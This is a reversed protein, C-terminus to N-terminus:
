AKKLVIKGRVHVNTGTIQTASTGSPKVELYDNAVVSTLTDIEQHYSNESGNFNMVKTSHGSQISSGNKRFEPTGTYATISAFDTAAEGATGGTFATISVNSGVTSATLSNGATGATKARLNVTTNSGGTSTVTPHIVTPTSYDTGSTGTLLIASRTNTVTDSTTAGILIENAVANNITTRYTYTVSDLTVTTGDSPQGGFTLTTTAAQATATFLWGMDVRFSKIDCPVKFLLRDQNASPIEFIDDFVESTSHLTWSSNSLFLGTEVSFEYSVEGLVNMEYNSGDYQGLFPRTEGPKLWIEDTSMGVFNGTANIVKVWYQTSSNRIWFRNTRQTALGHTTGITFTRTNDGLGIVDFLINTLNSMTYNSVVPVRLFNQLSNVGTTNSQVSVSQEYVQQSIANLNFRTIDFHYSVRIVDEGNELALWTNDSARYEFIRYQKGSTSAMALPSASTYTVSENSKLKLATNAGPRVNVTGDQGSNPTVEIAIRVGDVVDAFGGIGEVYGTPLHYVSTGQGTFENNKNLSLQVEGSAGNTYDTGLVRGIQTSMTEMSDYVKGITTRTVSGDIQTTDPRQGVTDFYLTTNNSIPATAYEGGSWVEVNDIAGKFRVNVADGDNADSTFIGMPQDALSSKRAAVEGDFSDIYAYEGKKVPDGQDNITAIDYSMFDANSSMLTGGSQGSAGSSGIPTLFNYTRGEWRNDTSDWLLVLTRNTLLEYASSVNGNYTYTTGDVVIENSAAFGFVFWSLSGINRFIYGQGDALSIGSTANNAVEYSQRAGTTRNLNITTNRDRTWTTSTDGNVGFMFTSTDNNPNSPFNPVIPTNAEGTIAVIGAEIYTFEISEGGSLTITDLFLNRVTTGSPFAIVVLGNVNARNNVIKLVIGANNATAAEITVTQTTTGSDDCIVETYQGLSSLTESTQRNFDLTPKIDIDITKTAATGSATARTNFNLTTAATSLDTGDNQITLSGGGSGGGDLQVWATNTSSPAPQSINIYTNAMWYNSSHSVIDGFQYHTTNNWAGRGSVRDIERWAGIASGTVPNGSNPSQAATAMYLREVGNNLFTVVEGAQYTNSTSHQGRWVGLQFNDIADLIAQLNDAIGNLNNDLNTTSVEVDVSDAIKDGQKLPKVKGELGIDPM